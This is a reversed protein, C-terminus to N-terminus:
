NMISFDAESINSTSINQLIALYEGSSTLRIITHSSNSGTGQTITLEVFTLGDLGIVDTGDQFDTIIDAKALDENGDGSRIVFTDAGSSGTLNDSGTGGDIINEGGTGYLQDDGSGGYLKDNTNSWGNYSFQEPNHGYLIDNGGNGYITDAGDTSSMGGHITNANGDGQITEAAKSGVLIEFNTAGATTMSLSTNDAFTVEKFTLTDTGAGGDLKTMNLSSIDSMKIWVTDDGAGMDVSDGNKFIAENIVDNGDGMKLTLNGGFESSRNFNLKVEDNGASGQVVVAGSVSSINVGDFVWRNNALQPGSPPLSQPGVGYMYVVKETSNWFAGMSGSTGNYIYAYNGVTLSETNKFNITGGSADTLKAYGTTSDYAFSVFDGLSSVGTYSISLTDTGAGGDIIDNFAGSKNSVNFVDNGAYGYLTDSGAGDNFTDDGSTGYLTQSTTDVLFTNVNLTSSTNSASDTVTITCDSYTGNALESFTVTNNDTTASTTASSCYGGYTITGAETSSFTYSSTNDSTPSSVATVQSLTPATTDVIFTNM